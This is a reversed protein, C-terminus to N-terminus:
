LILLEAFSPAATCSGTTGVLETEMRRCRVVVSTANTLTGTVASRIISCGSPVPPDVYGLHHLPRYLHPLCGAGRPLGLALLHLWM